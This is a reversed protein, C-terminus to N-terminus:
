WRTAVQATITRGEGYFCGFFSCTAVYTEDTLNQVNLSAALRGKEYRAGADILTVGDLEHANAADQRKGLHRLGAGVSAGNGFDHDAWLSALHRPANPMPQGVNTGGRQQTDNYAYSARLKWAAGIEATGELELGRSRVEGIDNYLYANHDADFGAWQAVNKQRLDYVAASLLAPFASPEYKVGVEVQRSRLPKLATLDTTLGTQPEFGTAFSVYPMVGQETRYGISARGTLADEDYEATIGYQEGTQRARDYRLSLTGRWPGSELEDQAYLATEELTADTRSAAPLVPMPTPEGIQDPSVPLTASIRSKEDVTHRRLDLGFLLRHIVAGTTAEGVLRTDLSLTRSAEDQASIGRMISGDAGLATSVYSGKYNWDFDEFRFGQQVKWGSAFEHSTEIGLSYLTRDSSDWGPMGFNTKRLRDGDGDRTLDYPVGVPTIPSDRTYSLMVDVTTADDPTWRLAGALYGRQNDVDDAQLHTDGLLGTVRTALRDSAATNVDFFLKGSGHSGYGVGAEGFDHDQARKQIQNVIGAPSGSGYLSSAPGRVVEVQQMGYLEYAVGGFYRGQRLGNVYQARAGDFGRVVPNDFRLDGGYAQPTVGASYSLAEGLTRAGQDAIQDVTVISLSQQAEAVPTDSKTAAQALTGVYGDAQVSADTTASLVVTELTVAGGAADAGDAAATQAFGQPAALLGSGALAITGALRRVRPTQTM